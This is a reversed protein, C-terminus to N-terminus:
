ASRQGIGFYRRTMLLIWKRHLVIHILALGGLIVGTWDHILTMQVIFPTKYTMGFLAYLSPVKIIGTVFCAIFSALIGMGIVYRNLTRTKRTSDQVTPTQTM